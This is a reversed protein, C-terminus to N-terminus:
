PIWKKVVKESGRKSGNKVTKLPNPLKPIKLVSKHIIQNTQGPGALAPGSITWFHALFPWFVPKKPTQFVSKERNQMTKMTKEVKQFIVVKQGSKSVWKKVRKQPKTM